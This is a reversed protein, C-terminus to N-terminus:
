CLRRLEILSKPIPSYFHLGFTLNALLRAVTSQFDLEASEAESTPSVSQVDVSRLRHPASLMGAWTLESLTRSALKPQALSGGGSTPQVKQKVLVRRKTFVESRQPPGCYVTDSDLTCSGSDAPFSREAHAVCEECLSSQAGSSHRGGRASQNGFGFVSFGVSLTLLAIWNTRLHTEKYAFGLLALSVVQFINWLTNVTSTHDRYLSFLTQYDLGTGAM